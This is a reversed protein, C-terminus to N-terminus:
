NQIPKSTTRLVPLRDLIFLKRLVVSPFLVNGHHTYLYHIFYTIYGAEAM